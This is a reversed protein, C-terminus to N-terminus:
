AYGRRTVGMMKRLDDIAIPVLLVDGIARVAVFTVRDGRVKKDRVMAKMVDPSWYPRDDTDLGCAQLAEVVAHRVDKKCLGLQESVRCAAVMGLAVAEGHRRRHKTVVEIAHGFTHGFNLVQRPGSEHEDEQVVDRKVECCATVLPGLVDPECRAIKAHDAMVTALIGPRAIVGYKVVEALGCRLDRRKLTKLSDLSAVVLRPQHFTGVANKLEPLNIGTKGGVSSDVQALLTTPVQVLDVGRNWTSAVFGAVDGVVGGGLALVVGGRDFSGAYLWSWLKSVSGPAKSGEGPVLSRLRAQHGGEALASMVREGYLRDVNRDTIVAVRRPGLERAIHASVCEVPDEVVLVAYGRDGLAVDVRSM